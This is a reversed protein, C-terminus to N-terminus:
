AGATVFAFAKASGTNVAQYAFVGTEVGGTSINVTDLRVSKEGYWQHAESAGVLVAGDQVSAGAPVIKFSDLRGEAPDLGVMVSLYAVADQQRTLALERWLDASVIAFDPTAEDQIALIGDVIYSLATAVGTPVTEATVATYNAATLMHALAKADQKRALDNASERYFGSWFDPTSFDVFARDVANAGALRFANITVAETKVESSTPEAPFGAYDGVTPTMGDTFKWGTVKLATLPQRNFLPVYKQRYTRSAWVERAWQPEQSPQVDAQVAQDLAALMRPDGTASASALRAFLDNADKIKNTNAKGYMGLPAQAANLAVDQAQEAPTETDAVTEEETASDEANTDGPQDEADDPLDGADEAVLQASPFAPRVVAGAATLLGSVLRGGRIVPSDIEVSVAPRLGERAEALLDDGASTQAVRFTAVLGDAEEHVDTARGVPRKFDHELNLTVTGVDEPITVSGQSATVKGLNTRGEEGYPLLRYTLTRADYDATLLTGATQM